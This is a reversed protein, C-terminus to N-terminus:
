TFHIHVKTHRPVKFVTYIRYVTLVIFVTDVTLVIYIQHLSFRVSALLYRYGMLPM